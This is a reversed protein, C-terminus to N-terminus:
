RATDIYGAGHVVGDVKLYDIEFYEYILSRFRFRFEVGYCPTIAIGSPNVLCWKTRVFNASVETGPDNKNSLRTEVMVELNQTLDTGVEISTITKPKRTGLDYTDTCIEFKPIEVEETPAVVILSGDKSGIGTVNIPGEGFSKTQIGYVFGYVGDCIYLIGLEPDMSIKPSTLVSLYESYDLIEIGQTGLKVLRNKRDIFYHEEDNGSVAGKCKIGIPYVTKLGWVNEVPTLVTVGNESYVVLGKGLKLIDRVYGSVELPREGAINSHTIDFVLRGIESWQVWNAKNGQISIGGSLVIVEVEIPDVVIVQGISVGGLIEVEVEVVSGPINESILTGLIELEVQIVSAHILTDAM